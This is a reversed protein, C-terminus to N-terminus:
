GITQLERALQDVTAVADRLRTIQAAHGSPVPRLQNSAATYPQDTHGHRFRTIFSQIYTASREVEDAINSISELPTVDVCASEGYANADPYM